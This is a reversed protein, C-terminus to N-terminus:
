GEILEEFFIAPYAIYPIKVKIVGEIDSIKLGIEDNTPNNDGKTIYISEGATTEIDYIRHVIKEDNYKYVIVDGVKLNYIEKADLKKVIIADGKNIEPSMSNSGVGMLYYNAKGSVLVITIFLLSALVVSLIKLIKGKSNLVKDINMHKKLKYSVYFASLLVFLVIIFISANPMIPLLFIPLEHLLRFSACYKLGLYKCLFCLLINYILIVIFTMIDLSGIRFVMFMTISFFVTIIYTLINYDNSRNINIYRILETLVVFIIYFLVHIISTLDFLNNRFGFLYGCIILINYFVLINIKLNSFFKNKLFNSKDKRYGYFIYFMYSLLLAFSASIVEIYTTVYRNAFLVLILYLVMIVIVSIEKKYNKLKELM